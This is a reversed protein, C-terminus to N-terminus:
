HARGIKLFSACGAAHISGREICAAPHALKKIYLRPRFFHSLSSSMAPSQTKDGGEFEQFTQRQERQADAREFKQVFVDLGNYLVPDVNKLHVRVTVVHM